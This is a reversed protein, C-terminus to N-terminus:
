IVTYANTDMDEVTQGDIPSMHMCYVYVHKTLHTHLHSHLHKDYHMHLHMKQEIM